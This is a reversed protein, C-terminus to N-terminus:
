RLFKVKLTHMCMVGKVGNVLKKPKLRVEM